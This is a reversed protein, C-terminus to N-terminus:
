RQFVSLYKQKKAIIKLTTISTWRRQEFGVFSNQHSSINRWAVLLTHVSEETIIYDFAISDFCFAM